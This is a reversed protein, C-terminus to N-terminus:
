SSGPAVATCCEEPTSVARDRARAKRRGALAALAASALLVLLGPEPVTGDGGGGGEACANLDELDRLCIYGYRVRLSDFAVAGDVQGDIPYFFPTTVSFLFSAGARGVVDVTGAGIFASLDDSALQFSLSGTDGVAAAGCPITTEPAIEQSCGALDPPGAFDFGKGAITVDDLVVGLSGMVELLHGQTHELYADSAIEAAGNSSLSFAVFVDTLEYGALSFRPLLGTTSLGLSLNVPQNGNLQTGARTDSFSALTGDLTLSGIEIAWAPTGLQLLALTAVAAAARAMTRARGPLAPNRQSLHHATERM